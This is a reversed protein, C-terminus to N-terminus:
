CDDTWKSWPGEQFGKTMFRTGVERSLVSKEWLVVHGIGVWTGLEGLYEVFVRLSVDEYAMRETTRWIFSGLIRGTSDNTKEYADVYSTYGTTVGGYKDIAEFMGKGEANAYPGIYASKTVIYTATDAICLVDPLQQPHICCMVCADYLIDHMRKDRASVNGKWECSHALLGYIPLQNLEDYPTGTRSERMKKVKVANRFLKKIHAKRLTLKCEFAAIVGAAFYHKKNRLGHPYSPNLVLIDIQPSAVGRSDILRGKTVVSYNSPLWRRLFEAWSEEVQDGATGPDEISRSRILRYESAMAEKLMGMFELFDHESKGDPRPTRDESQESGPLGLRNIRTNSFAVLLWEIAARYEEYSPNKTIEGLERFNKVRRWEQNESFFEAEITRFVYEWDEKKLSRLNPEHVEACRNRNWVPLQHAKRCTVYMRWCDEGDTESFEWDDIRDHLLDVSNRFLSYLVAKDTLSLPETFANDTLCRITKHLSCVYQGNTIGNLFPDLHFDCKRNKGLTNSDRASELDFGVCNLFFDLSELPFAGQYKTRM